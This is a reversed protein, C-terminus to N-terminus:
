LKVRYQKALEKIKEYSIELFCKSNDTSTVSKVGKSWIETLIAKATEKRVEENHKAIANLLEDITM